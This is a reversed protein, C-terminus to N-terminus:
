PSAALDSERAAIQVQVGSRARVDPQRLQLATAGTRRGPQLREPLGNLTLEQGEGFM